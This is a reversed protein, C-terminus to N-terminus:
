VLDRMSPHILTRVAQRADAPCRADLVEELMAQCQDVTHLALSARVMPVKVPTMSLSTLGAGVALLALLPDGCAEGCIGVPKGLAVGAAGTTAVLDWLGPQWPDLLESLRGELRDAAFLYQSLDNTGISVFDCCELVHRSRLAAGPVEVMAGVHDLGLDHGLNAFWQAELATSVMPAMVWVSAESQRAAAAIAQLQTEVLGPIAEYLRLGRMGLAPNPETGLSAYAIPKDAGSDLTRVVVKRGRFPAFIRRYTETQEELSPAEHRELYLFESRVLGTDEVDAAGAAVADAITGINALLEVPRGDKTHGPGGSRTQLRTRAEERREWRARDEADPNIIVEGTGGDVALMTPQADLIGHCGVVAPIGLHAALISAHSTPGGQDMVIALVKTPDLAVTDAPALEEAVVIAPETLDPMGPEPLGQLRAHARRHVDHLDAVREAMYGGLEALLVAFHDIAAALARYRGKGSSLQRGVEEEIAPDRAIMATASLVEKFDKESAQEARREMGQAVAELASAIEKQCTEPDSERPEMEPLEIEDHHVMAVPGSAVGPSVGIGTLKM